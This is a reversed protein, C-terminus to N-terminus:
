VSNAKILLAKAMPINLAMRSKLFVSVGSGSGRQAYMNLYEVLTTKGTASDGLIVTVNRRITFEYRMRETEVIIRHSGIM